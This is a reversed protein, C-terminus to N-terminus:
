FAEPIIIDVAFLFAFHILLSPNYGSFWLSVGLITYIVNVRFRPSFISNVRGGFSDRM